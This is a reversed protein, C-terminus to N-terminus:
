EGHCASVQQIMALADSLGQECAEDGMALQRAYIFQIDQLGMLGLVQRLYATLLDEATGLFDGGQAALVYVQKARLLGVPGTDSYQFTKGARVVHDLWAKLTSPIGLNYMPVGLVLCDARILEEVLRDSLAPENQLDGSPDGVASDFAQFVDQTLHPVPDEALDRRIYVAEQYGKLLKVSLADALTSSHSAGGRMGSNIQLLTAM